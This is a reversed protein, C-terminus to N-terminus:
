TKKTSHGYVRYTFYRNLTTEVERLVNKIDEKCPRVFPCVGSNCSPQVILVPLSAVPPSVIRAFLEENTLFAEDPLVLIVRDSPYRYTCKSKSAKLCARIERVETERKLGCAPSKHVHYHVKTDCVVCPIQQTGSPSNTDWSGSQTRFNNVSGVLVCFSCCFFALIRSLDRHEKTFHV